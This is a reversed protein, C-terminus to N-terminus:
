TMLPNQVTCNFFLEQLDQDKFLITLCDSLKLKREKKAHSVAPNGPFSPTPLPSGHFVITRAKKSKVLAKSEDFVTLTDLIDDFM